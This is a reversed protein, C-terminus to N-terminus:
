HHQDDVRKDNRFPKRWPKQGGAFRRQPANRNPGAFRTHDRPRREVDAMELEEANHCSAGLLGWAPDRRQGALRKLRESSFQVGDVGWDAVWAPDGNIILTAGAAKAMPLVAKCLAHYQTEPLSKARLQLWRLGADLLTQLVPLFQGPPCRSPDAILYLPTQPLIM